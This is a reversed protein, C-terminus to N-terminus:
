GLSISSDRMASRHGALDLNNLDTLRELHVLGADSVQTDSLDLGKLATLEELHALDNDTVKQM